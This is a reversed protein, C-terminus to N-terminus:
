ALSELLHRMGVLDFEDHLSYECFLGWARGVTADSVTGPTRNTVEDRLRANEAILDRVNVDDVLIPGSVCASDIRMWPYLPRTGVARHHVGNIHESM